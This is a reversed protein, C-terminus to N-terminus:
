IVGLFSWLMAIRNKRVYAVHAFGAVKERVELGALGVAQGLRFCTWFAPLKHGAIIM